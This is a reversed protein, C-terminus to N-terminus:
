KQATEKELILTVKNFDAAANIVKQFNEYDSIPFQVKKYFEEVKITLVKKDLTYDSVFGIAGNSFTISRRIAEQGALRYGEPIQLKLIRTYSHVNGIDIPHQRPRENYMETQPGILEGVKVLVRQNVKELISKRSVQASVLFDQDVEPSNLNANSAVVNSTVIDEGISQKLFDTLMQSREETNGLYYYPRIQAAQYGGMRRVYQINMQDVQPTFSVNAEINDYNQDVPGVPIQNIASIGTKLKGLTATSIYVADTGEMTYDFFGLRLFRNEPDLYKQSQPFYLLYKDLFNWTDFGRDFQQEYRSCGIVVEFPINLSEFLGIYLRLVGAQTGFKRELVNAAIDDDVDKRLAIHTKVYNEVTRIAQQEPLGKIKEKALFRALAKESNEQGQHLFDYIRSGAENWSLIRNSGTLQNYALKYEVRLRNAKVAAYKEDMLAPVQRSHFSLIRKEGVTSTDQRTNKGNYVKGEFVLHRPAIILLESERLPTNEQVVEVGFLTINGKLLYVLEVEGGVELGEVALIKYRRGEEEIEKVSELGVEKVIGRPSISRAKVILLGEKSVVPLVLKNFQEVAAAGNLHVRRYVGYYREGKDKEGLLYEIYTKEKLVVGTEKLEESSLTAISKDVKRDLDLKKFELDQAQSVGVCGVVLVAM